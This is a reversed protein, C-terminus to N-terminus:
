KINQRIYAYAIASVGGAIMIPWHPLLWFYWWAEIYHPAEKIRWFPTLLLALAGYLQAGWSVIDKRNDTYAYFIIRFALFFAGSAEVFVLM